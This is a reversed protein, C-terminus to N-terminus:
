PHKVYYETFERCRSDDDFRMVFCNGFVQTVPGEATDRYTSTGTAVVVDGDVAVPAYSADYTGPEDRTPARDDDTEGLWSAVVAERGTIPEEYPHYRYSVDESFLVGIADRDYSLWAAVYHDLWQQATDHEMAEGYGAASPGDADAALVELIEALGLTNEAKGPTRDQAAALVLYQALDRVKVNATQSCARLRDFAEDADVAFLQIVIGKAQEIVARHARFDDVVPALNDNLIEEQLTTLDVLQGRLHVAGQSGESGTGLMLVRRTAGQDTVADRDDPHAHFRIVEPSWTWRDQGADYSFGGVLPGEDGQTDAYAGELKDESM